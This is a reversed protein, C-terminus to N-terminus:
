GAFLAGMLIPISVVSLLTTIFVASAALSQDQDYQASLITFNSAIPMGLVAVIVGLTTEDAVLPKLLLFGVLPILVLKILAIIYLRWNNWISKFPVSSLACGIILMACPTTVRRLTDLTKEGVGGVQVGMLYCLLGVVASIVMPTLFTKLKPRESPGSRILFVGYTYLVVYFVMIFISVIFVASAGYVASIVPIGMYGINSFILMFQYQGRQQTLVKLLRPLPKALLILVFFVCCAIGMVRLVQGNSLTRQSCLASYLINCPNTICNIVKSLTKNGALTMTGTKGAVYGLGMILFLVMMQQFVASTDVTM